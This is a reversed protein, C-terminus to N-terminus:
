KKLLKDLTTAKKPKGIFNYAISIRYNSTKTLSYSEHNFNPGITYVRNKQDLLPDILNVGLSMKKHFIKRQMGVNLSTNWKVFGQPNGFRNFTISGTVNWLDNPVYSSNLNSTITSGNRYRLLARDKATYVHYSYSASANVRFKNTFNYGSWNSIEYEKRDDINQWTIFTKGDSQLTRIQAFANQVINHGAGFNFYYKDNSTGLVIDITHSTSAALQPNGFRLNYPDGYEVSPNLQYIGPRAITRRYSVTINYHEKWTKNFNLYPLLNWYNNSANINQKYVEFILDTNEANIGFSLSTKKAIKQSFSVRINSLKQDFLFDNSLLENRVLVNDPKRLYNTNVLVHNYSGSYYGGYSFSTKKNAFPIEKSFRFSYGTVRTDTGQLQFSDLGNPTKDPNYFHQNFERDSFNGSYNISLWARLNVGARKGKHLFSVSLNPAYNNLGTLVDRNSLRYIQSFRNLNTYWVGSKNDANSQNYLM